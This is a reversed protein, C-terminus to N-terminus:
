GIKKKDRLYFKDLYSFMRKMMFSLMAYHNWQQILVELVRGQDIANKLDPVVDEVVYTELIKEYRELFFLCFKDGQDCLSQV